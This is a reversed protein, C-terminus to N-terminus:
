IGIKVQLSYLYKRIFLTQNVALKNNGVVYCSILDDRTNNLSIVHSMLYTMHSFHMHITKYVVVYYTTIFRNIAM